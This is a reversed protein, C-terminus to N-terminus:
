RCIPCSWYVAASVSPRSRPVALFASTRAKPRRHAKLASISSIMEFFNIKLCDELVLDLDLKCSLSHYLSRSPLQPQWVNKNNNNNNNNIKEVCSFLLTAAIVTMVSTEAEQSRPKATPGGPASSWHWSPSSRRWSATGLCVPYLRSLGPPKLTRLWSSATPGM